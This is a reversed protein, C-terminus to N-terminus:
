LSCRIPSPKSSNLLLLDHQDPFLECRFDSTTEPIPGSEKKALNVAVRCNLHTLALLTM